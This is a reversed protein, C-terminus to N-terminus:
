SDVAKVRNNKVYDALDSKTFRVAGGIKVFPIRRRQQLRRVGRVSIKLLKAVEPITLLEPESSSDTSM